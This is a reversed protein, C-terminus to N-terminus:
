RQECRKNRGYNPSAGKQAGGEWAVSESGSGGTCGTSGTGGSTTEALYPPAGIPRGRQAASCRVYIIGSRDTSCQYSAPFLASISGRAGTCVSGSGHSSPFGTRRSAGIASEAQWYLKKRTTGWSGSSGTSCNSTRGAAAFLAM